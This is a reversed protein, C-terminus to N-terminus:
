IEIHITMCLSVARSFSPHCGSLRSVVTLKSVVLKSRAQTRLYGRYTLCGVM